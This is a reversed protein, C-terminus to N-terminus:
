MEGKLKEIQKNIKEVKERLAIIKKEPLTSYVRIGFNPHKVLKLYVVYGSLTIRTEDLVIPKESKKNKIQETEM